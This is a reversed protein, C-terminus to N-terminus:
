SGVLSAILEEFAGGEVLSESQEIVSRPSYNIRFKHRNFGSVFEAIVFNDAQDASASHALDVFGPVYSQAAHDRDLNQGRVNYLVLIEPLLENTFGMCNRFQIMGM